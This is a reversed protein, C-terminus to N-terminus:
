MWSFSFSENVGVAPEPAAAPITYGWWQNRPRFMGNIPPGNSSFIAGTVTGSNGQVSLDPEQSAGNLPWYGTLRNSISGPFMMCQRIEEVSLMRNFSQAHAILGDFTETGDGTNGIHIRELGDGTLANSGTVHDSYEPEYGDIYMWSANSFNQQRQVVAIHHWKGLTITNDTSVARVKLTSHTTNHFWAVTNNTEMHLTWETNNTNPRASKLIVGGDSEGLSNAKIWAMFTMNTGTLNEGTVIKDDVGDFDRSM